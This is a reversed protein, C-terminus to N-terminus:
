PIDGEQLLENGLRVLELLLHRLRDRPLTGDFDAATNIDMELRCYTSIHRPTPQPPVILIMYSSGASWRALRNIRLQQEPTLVKSTRPRNIQYSFDFSHLADLDFNLYSSLQNYSEDRTAVPLRAIAGWALRQLEPCVAFWRPIFDIFPEAFSGFSTAETASFGPDAPAYNWHVVGPSTALSLHANEYEITQTRTPGTRQDTIRPYASPAFLDDLWPPDLHDFEGRLFSTVRLFEARWSTIPARRADPDTRM